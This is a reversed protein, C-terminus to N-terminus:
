AEFTKKNFILVTFLLILGVYVLAHTGNLLLSMRSITEPTGIINKAYNLGEFNPFLLYLFQSFRLFAVNSNRIATDILPSISHSIVYIGVTLLISLLSSIFTSFFLIIAFLVMLKLYTFVIAVVFLYTWPTGAYWVVGAFLVSQFLIICLLILAFGFFKGLIFEYRAIPKSLILYITKGEIEKFLIQSGIFIVSLLGFMEIMALGFDGVIKDTQGLSLAALALSFIILLIGFFLILYLMKNRALERFTNKAINWM